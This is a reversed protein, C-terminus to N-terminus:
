EDENETLSVDSVINPFFAEVNSSMKDSSDFNNRWEETLATRVLEDM